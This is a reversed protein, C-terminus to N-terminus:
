IIQYAAKAFKIINELVKKTEPQITKNDHLINIYLNIDELKFKMSYAYRSNLYTYQFRNITNTDNEVLRQIDYYKNELVERYSEFEEPIYIEKFKEPVFLSEFSTFFSNPLYEYLNLFTSFNTYLRFELYTIKKKDFDYKGKITEKYTQGISQWNEDEFDLELFPNMLSSLKCLSDHNSFMGHITSDSYLDNTTIETNMYSYFKKTFDKAIYSSLNTDKFEYDPKLKITGDDETTSCTGSTASLFFNTPDLEFITILERGSLNITMDGRVLAAPGYLYYYDYKINSNISSDEEIDNLTSVYKKVILDLDVDDKDIIHKNMIPSANTAIKKLFYAEYISIDTVYFSIDVHSYLNSVHAGFGVGNKSGMNNQKTVCAQYLKDINLTSVVEIKM